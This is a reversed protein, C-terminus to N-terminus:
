RIESYKRYVRLTEEATKRWTFLKVRNFGKEILEKRNELAKKIGGAIDRVSKPNVLVAAGGSVEPMSSINATVVPCGCAMAELIPLGFGEYLSPYVLCSAGSYLATLDERTVYPEGVIFLPLGSSAKVVREKNKRASGSFCLLYDGSIRYKRKMAEIKKKKQPQFEQSVGEYIVRIKKEPIGLHNMVDKKTTKSSVIIVKSEKKVWALRRKHTAIIKPHTEDPFLLPTLDHITTVKPCKSPPETWDSTHFIDIQGIFKEIPFIHLRNWILDLFNPPFKFSCLNTFPPPRRRLSSFFLVYENLRDIKLLNEVLSKTYVSVGSGYIIQSIDIGFRM